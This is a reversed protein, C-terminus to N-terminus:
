AAERQQRLWENIAALDFLTVREGAKVPKPFDPRTKCWHWLTSNSIKLHQCVQRPREFRQLNEPPPPAAQQYKSLNTVNTNAM